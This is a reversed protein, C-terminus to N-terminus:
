ISRFLESTHPIMEWLYKWMWWFDVKTDHWGVAGFSIDVSTTISEVDMWGNMRRSAELLDGLLYPKNKTAFHSTTIDYDNSERERERYTGTCYWSGNYTPYRGGNNQYQPDDLRRRWCECRDTKTSMYRNKQSDSTYYYVGQSQQSIPFNQMKKFATLEFEDSVRFWRKSCFCEGWDCFTHIRKTSYLTTSWVIGYVRWETTTFVRCYTDYQIGVNM